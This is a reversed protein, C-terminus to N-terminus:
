KCLMMGIIKFTSGGILDVKLTMTSGKLAKSELKLTHEYTISSESGHSGKIEVSKTQKKNQHETTLTFRAISGAWKDGYSKLTYLDLTRVERQINRWQLSFSAKLKTAVWGLRRAYGGAYYDEVAEWGSSQKTSSRMFDTLSRSNRVTGSPGAIFAFLCPLDKYGADAGGQCLKTTESALDEWAKSVTTLTLEKTLAPPSTTKLTSIKASFISEPRTDASAMFLKDQCFETLANVVAFAVSWMITVHGAMGFHPDVKKALGFTSSFIKEATQAYVSHRVVDAYSVVMIDDYWQALKTIAHNHALEGRIYNHQNGLYDDVFIVLPSHCPNTNHAAVVLRQARDFQATEYKELAAGDLRTHYPRTFEENTSYGFMIIDPGAPMMEKPYLRYKVTSLGIESSTGGVAMNSVQIVGVGLLQNALHQLRNPWSCDNMRIKPRTAAPKFLGDPEVDCGRGQTVSGGLVAIKLPPAGTTKEQEAGIEKPDTCKACIRCAPEKERGVAQYAEATTLKSGDGFYKQIRAICAYPGVAADCEACAGSAKNQAKPQAALFSRRAQVIDLVRAVTKSDPMAIAGKRLMTPTLSALVKVMWDRHVFTSDAPHRSADLMQDLHTTWWQSASYDVSACIGSEVASANLQQKGSEVGQVQQLEKQLKSVEQQSEMKSNGLLKQLEIAKEKLEDIKGNTLETQKSEQSTGERAKALEEKLVKVESQLLRRAEM